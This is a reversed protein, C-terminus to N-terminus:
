RPRKNKIHESDPHLEQLLKKFTGQFTQLGVHITYKAGPIIPRNMKRTYIKAKFIKVLPIPHVPDCVINGKEIQDFDEEKAINLIVDVTEGAVAFKIKTEERFISKVTVLMELPMVMVKDKESLIGGEVKVTIGMGKKKASLGKFINKVTLRLPKSMAVENENPLKLMEGLLSDGKYWSMKHKEILNEGKFASIPVYSINLQEMKESLFYKDLAKTIENFTDESWDIADMKNVAVIIEKITNSQLLAIHDKTLSGEMTTSFKIADILLIAVDVQSAGKMTNFYFDMHGPTDIFHIRKNGVRM